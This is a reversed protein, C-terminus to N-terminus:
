PTEEADPGNPASATTLGKLFLQGWRESKGVRPGLKAGKIDPENALIALAEAQADVDNPVQTAPKRQKLSPISILCPRQEGWLFLNLIGCLVANESGKGSRFPPSVATLSRVRPSPNDQTGHCDPM